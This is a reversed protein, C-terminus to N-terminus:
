GDPPSPRARRRCARGRWTCARSRCCRLTGRPRHHCPRTGPGRQPSRARAQRRHGCRSSRLAPAAGGRRHGDACAASDVPRDRSMPALDAVQSGLVQSSLARSGPVRSGLVQSSLAPLDPVRSDLAQSSLAQSGLAQSGLARSGLAQSGLAQSGLAQSGLAQAM